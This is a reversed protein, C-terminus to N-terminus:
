IFQKIKKNVLYNVTKGENATANVLDLKVSDLIM